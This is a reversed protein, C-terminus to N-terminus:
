AATITGASVITDKSKWFVIGALLLLGTGLL